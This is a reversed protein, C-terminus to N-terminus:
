LPPQAPSGTSQSEPLSVYPRTGSLPYGLKAGSRNKKKKKKGRCFLFVLFSFFPLLCSVSFAIM